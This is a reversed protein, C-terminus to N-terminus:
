SRIPPRLLLTQDVSRYLDPFSSTIYHDLLPLLKSSSRGVLNACHSCDDCQNCYAKSTDCHDATKVVHDSMDHSSLPQSSDHKVDSQIQLHVRDADVAFEVPTMVSAISAFASAVPMMVISLLLLYIIAKYKNRIM